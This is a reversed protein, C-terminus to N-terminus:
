GAPCLVVPLFVYRGVCAADDFFDACGFNCCAFADVEGLQWAHVFCLYLVQFRVVFFHEFVGRPGDAEDFGDGGNVYDGSLSEVCFVPDGEDEEIAVEFDCELFEHDVAGVEERWAHIVLCFDSLEEFVARVDDCLDCGFDLNGCCEEGLCLVIIPYAVLEDM